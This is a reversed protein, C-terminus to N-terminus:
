LLLVTLYAAFTLCHVTCYLCALLVISHARVSRFYWEVELIVQKQITNNFTVLTRKVECMLEQSQPSSGGCVSTRRIGLNTLLKEVVLESCKLVM